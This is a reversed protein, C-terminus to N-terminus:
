LCIRRVVEFAEAYFAGVNVGRWEMLLKLAKPSRPHPYECIESTYVQIAAIKKELHKENVIVYQTPLFVDASTQVQWETSSSVEFSYIERVTEKQMPRCATLVAQFTRQHDINLDHAHHTFIIQPKISRKKVEIAKIIDLLDVSDFRNDPFNLIESSKAGIIRAAEKVESHLKHIETKVSETHRIDQRSTIGEGLILIHIEYGDEAFKAMTAGCGLIEDDPHAAVVLVTNMM